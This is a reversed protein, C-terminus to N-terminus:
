EEALVARLVERNRREVTDPRFTCQERLKKEREMRVKEKKNPNKSM